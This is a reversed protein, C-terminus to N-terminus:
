IDCIYKCYKIIHYKKNVNHEKPIEKFSIILKTKNTKNSCFFVFWIFCNLVVGKM